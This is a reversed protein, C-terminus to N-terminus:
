LIILDLRYRLHEGILLALADIFGAQKVSIELFEDPNTGSSGIYFEVSHNSALLLAAIDHLFEMRQKFSLKNTKSAFFWGDPLLLMECNDCAIDDLLNVIM